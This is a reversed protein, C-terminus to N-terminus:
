GTYHNYRDNPSYNTTRSNLAAIDGNGLTGKIQGYWNWDYGADLGGGADAYNIESGSGTGDTEGLLFVEPKYRKIEERFPRWWTSAGYREQPGWYVDLRFGDAKRNVLWFRHVDMMARRTEENSLNLNALNWNSYRAYLAYTSEMVVSQGLGRDSGLVRTEIFPRYISYDRWDRIDDVWPHSGSVHNPTMDLIIKMGNTHCSDVLRDFDVITGISEDVNYFDVINYGGNSSNISGLNDMIPMLWLTNVGLIKMRPIGDIVGQLNGNSSFAPVFIEYVVADRVWAPNENLAGLAPEGEAPSVRIYNRAIGINNAPDRAELTFYYEGPVVPIPFSLLAGDQDIALAAPNKGDESLWHFQLNDGDPDTSAAANLNINGSSSGLQIVAIPTHDIVRHLILETTHIPFGDKLAYAIFSNDGEELMVTSSYVNGNVAAAMSDVGNRVVIVDSIGSVTATLHITMQNRLVHPNNRTLWQLAAARVTFRTSDRTEYDRPEAAVVTVTHEGDTLPPLTLRLFGTSPDFANGFTGTPQGDVLIYSAGTDITQTTVPFIEAVLEPTEIGVISGDLPQLHFITPRRVYIISNGYSGFTLPNLPDSLWGTSTGGENLKYQYSGGPGSGGGTKLRIIKVWSGDPQKAMTWLAGPNIAGGSNNAWNNFEGPLHVVSPNGTPFYRFTVDVSDQAAASFVLIFGLLLASFFRM